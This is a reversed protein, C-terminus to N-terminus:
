GTITIVTVGLVFFTVNNITNADQNNPINSNLKMSTMGGRRRLDKKERRGNGQNVFQLGNHHFVFIREEKTTM